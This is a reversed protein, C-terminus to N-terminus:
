RMRRRPDGNEPRFVSRVRSGAAQSSIDSIDARATIGRRAPGTAGPPIAPVPEDRV